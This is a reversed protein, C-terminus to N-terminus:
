VHFGFRLALGADEENDSAAECGAPSSPPAPASPPPAPAGAAGPAADAANAAGAIVSGQTQMAMLLQRFSGLPRPVLPLLVM